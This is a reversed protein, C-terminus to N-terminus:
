IPIELYEGSGVGLVLGAITAARPQMKPWSTSLLVVVAIRRGELKQQYRSNQDTTVLCDFGENEAARLLRGNTLEAWGKEYATAVMHGTLFARM